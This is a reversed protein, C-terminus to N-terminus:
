GGKTVMALLLHVTLTVLGTILAGGLLGLWLSARKEVDQLRKATREQAPTWVETKWTSWTTVSVYHDAQGEMVDSLHALSRKIEGIDERVHGIEREWDTTVLVGEDGM